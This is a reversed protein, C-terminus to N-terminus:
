TTVAETPLRGLRAIEAEVAALVTDPSIRQMCAPRVDCDSLYCGLCSMDTPLIKTGRGYLEIEPASTPGFLAVIRKGLASALHLAMTDGTVMVDCLDVLAGFQRLSNETGTDVLMEPALRVLARNREREEPGGYLLIRANPHTARIARILEVQGEDTWKKWRWRGGAGTNLGIRL